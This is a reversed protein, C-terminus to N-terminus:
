RRHGEHALDRLRGGPGVLDALTVGQKALRKRSARLEALARRITPSDRGVVPGLEAVPRGHKTIVFREGKLVRELLRPLHTKAEYAGIEEV